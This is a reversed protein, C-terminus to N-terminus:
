RTSTEINKPTPGDKPTYTTEQGWEQLFSVRGGLCSDIALPKEALAPVEHVNEPMKDPKSKHLYNYM